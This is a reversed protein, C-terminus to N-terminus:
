FGYEEGMLIVKIRGPIEQRGLFVYSSCIRDEAMCDMCRGTQVCPTRMHLRRANKPAAVTRLREMAEIKTGVVKQRGAIVIVRKPGFIMAAVRNGNGDINYLWGDMTVANTSTVYVDCSFAQRFIYATDAGEADRDLFSIAGEKGLRRLEERAGTEVLTMSGGCTVVAGRPLCSRLVPIMEAADKVYVADMNNRRLNKVTERLRDDWTGM